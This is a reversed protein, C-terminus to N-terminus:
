KILVMKKSRVASGHEVRAFYVGSSVAAGADSRGRWEISYAGADHQRSVLTAVRAGRADYVVVTVM